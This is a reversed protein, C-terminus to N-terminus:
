YFVHTEIQNIAPKIEVFYQLDIFRNPSFNSVGIARVQGAKYAEEMARYTGYYDGFPQHVLLLDIYDTQLKKLSKEISDKAKEYGANSIWIKTTIFFEERSLGSELIAEGVGAENGYIQATDFSRYGVEIADLVVRKTEDVPTQFVGFGLQPMKVNNNLTKYYM